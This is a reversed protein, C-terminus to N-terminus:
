NPNNKLYQVVERITVVGTETEKKLLKLNGENDYHYTTSFNEEDLVASLRLSNIEYVFSKMMADTPLIRVDDVWMSTSSGKSFKVKIRRTGLPVLFSGMVRQWKEISNVEPYLKQTGLVAGAQNEMVIELFQNPDSIPDASSAGDSIWASFTYEKGESLKILDQSITETPNIIKMSRTGTHAFASDFVLSEPTSLSVKFVALKYLQKFPEPLNGIPIVLITKSPDTPHQQKCIIPTDTFNPLAGEIDQPAVISVSNFESIQDLPIDVLAVFRNMGIIKATFIKNNSNQSLRWNGIVSSSIDEFDTFLIEDRKANSATAIVNSGSYGYLNSSYIGLADMAEDALGDENMSTTRSSEVWGPVIGLEPYTYSFGNMQFTGDVSLDTTQSFSRDADFFYTSLDGWNESTGNLYSNLVNLEDNSFSRSWNEAFTQVSANLVQNSTVTATSFLEEVFDQESVASLQFNVSRGFTFDFVVTDGCKFYIKLTVSYNGNAGYTHVPTKKTSSAGDGFTWEYSIPACGEVLNPIPDFAVGCYVHYPDFSISGLSKTSKILNRNKSQLTLLPANDHIIRYFYTGFDSDTLYDTTYNRNYRTFETQLAVENGNVLKFWKYKASPLTIETDVSASFTHKFGIRVSDVKEEDALMQPAYTFTSGNFEKLVSIFNSFSFNCFSIDILGSVYRLGYPLDGTLAPNNNVRFETKGSPLSMLQLPIDGSFGNYAINFLQLNYQSSLWDPITGSLGSLYAVFNKLGTFQATGIPLIGSFNNEYLYLEELNPLQLLTEPITGSLNNDGLQLVSLSTMENIQSFVTDALSNGTLYLHQLNQLYRLESPIPGDLNCYTLLLTQLQTLNGFSTPIDGGLLNNSLNLNLLNTINGLQRPIGGNLNNNSLILHNLWTMLGFGIPIGGSLQNNDLNLTKLHTLNNITSPITGVLNNGSLDISVVHGNEDVDIGYWNSVDVTNQTVVWGEKNVWNSGNTQSHLLMLVDFESQSPAPSSQISNLASMRSNSNSSMRLGSNVKNRGSYKFPSVFKFQIEQLTKNKMELKMRELERRSLEKQSQALLGQSFFLGLVIGIYFIKM